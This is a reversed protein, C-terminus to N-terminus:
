KSPFPRVYIDIPSSFACSLQFRTTKVKTKKVRTMKKLTGKDKALFDIYSSRYKSFMCEPEHFGLCTQLLPQVLKAIM